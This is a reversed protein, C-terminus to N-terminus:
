PPLRFITVQAGLAAPFRTSQPGTFTLTVGQGNSPTTISSHVMTGPIMQSSLAGGIGLMYVPLPWPSTFTEVTAERAMLARLNRIGFRFRAPISTRPVGPISDVDLAASFDGFLAGFSEGARAEINTIGTDSTQELAGIIGEGKQSALWRLFLWTAGREELSGGGSYSTVSHARTNNLYVYANLLQPQIFPGASDPFLQTTTSRGSPAPYKSEYYVSGLEEAIQGLGENLWSQEPEGGRLLVHQNYSIMHQLEHLFTPQVTTVVSAATHPCSFVGTSDPVYSYFIEAKNSNPNSVVLDPAYFFGTVYGAFACSGPQVLENIKPTFLAIVHGDGDVDSVDGFAGVDISYLDKDFLAGLTDYQADSFGQAVTDAYLYIHAGAYILRATVATFSSGDIAAVVKFSRLTGAAPTAARLVTTSRAPSAADARARPAVDREIKRLTAEFDRRIRNDGPVAPPPLVASATGRVITGAATAPANVGATGIEWNVIDTPAGVSAFEGVVLYNSSDGPLSLCGGLQASSVTVATLPAINLRVPRAVYTAVVSNSAVPGAGVSVQVAGGPLCPPVIARLLDATGGALVPASAGGIEVFGGGGEVAQLASGALSITDGAGFAAPSVSAVVPRVVPTGEIADHHCGAIMAAGIIVLRALDNHRLDKAM